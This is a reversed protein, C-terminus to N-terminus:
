VGLRSVGRDDGRRGPHGPSDASGPRIALRHRFSLPEPFSETKRWTCKRCITRVASRCGRHVRASQSASSVSRRTTRHAVGIRFPASPTWMANFDAGAGSATRLRFSISVKPRRDPASRPRGADSDRVARPCLVGDRPCRPGGATSTTSEQGSQFLRGPNSPGSGPACTLRGRKTVPTPVSVSPARQRGAGFHPHADGTPRAGQESSPRRRLFDIFPRAGQAAHLPGAPYLAYVGRSISPLDPILVDEVLGAM